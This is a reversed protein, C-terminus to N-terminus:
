RGTDRPEVVVETHPLDRNEKADAGASHLAVRQVDILLEVDGYTCLQGLEEALM